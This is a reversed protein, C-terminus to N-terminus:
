DDLNALREAKISEWEEELVATMAAM